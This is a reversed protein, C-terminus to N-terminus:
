VREMASNLFPTGERTRWKENLSQTKAQPAVDRGQGLTLDCKVSCLPPQKPKLFYSLGM